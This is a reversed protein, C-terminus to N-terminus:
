GGAKLRAKIAELRAKTASVAVPKAAAAPEPVSTAEDPEPLNADIPAAFPDVPVEKVVTKPEEFAPAPKGDAIGRLGRPGVQAAIRQAAELVTVANVLAQTSETQLALQNTKDLITQLVTEITQKPMQM